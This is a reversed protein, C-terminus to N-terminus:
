DDERRDEALTRQDQAYRMIESFGFLLLLVGGVIEVATLARVLESAPAIDGYGLTSMTVISFYLSDSFDVRHPSGNFNFHAGPVYLDIIRYICAFLIVLMSYFTLFAFAPVVLGVVRDFFREFMLGALLLFVSVRPSLLFVILAVAGMSVFLTLGEREPSWAFSPLAFSFLGIAALPLLWLLGRTLGEAALSPRSAIIERIRRRHLVAGGIFAFIPLLFGTRVAATSAQLFNTEVLFVYICAYVALFNALSISFFRSGPFLVYIAGVGAIITASMMLAFTFESGGSATAILLVAALTLIPAQLWSPDRGSM